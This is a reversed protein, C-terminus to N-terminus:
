FSRTVHVPDASWGRRAILAIGIGLLWLSWLVYLIPIAVGVLDWGREEHPGLFEASGVLLGAGLVIGPWGM